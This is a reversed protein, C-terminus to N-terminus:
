APPPCLRPIAIWPSAEERAEARGDPLLLVAVERPMNHVRHSPLFGDNIYAKYKSYRSSLFGRITEVTEAMKLLGLLDTKVRGLSLSALPQM